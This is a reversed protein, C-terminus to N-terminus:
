GTAKLSMGSPGFRLQDSRILDLAIDVLGPDWQTARGVQLEAVIKNRGLPARYSRQGSMAEISDAVAVIRALLPTEAGALSDPYGNGDWREHHHRVIKSVLPPLPLPELMRAGIVPHEQIVIREEATIPGPKLLISDPIGIKGVDHLVASLELVELDARTLCILAGVELALGALRETHGSLGSYRVEIANALVTAVTPALLRDQLEVEALQVRGLATAVKQCLESAKFPKNIFGAAGRDLAERVDGQEASGTVPIIPLTPRLEHLCNILELGSVSGPMHIDTLVVEVNEREVAAIAERASKAILVRYGEATLIEAVLERISADDDVVLVCSAAVVEAEVQQSM